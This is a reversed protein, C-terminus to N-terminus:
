RTVPTVRIAMRCSFLISSTSPGRFVDPCCHSEHIATKPGRSFSPLGAVSYSGSVPFSSWLTAAVKRRYSTVSRNRFSGALYAGIRRWRIRIM